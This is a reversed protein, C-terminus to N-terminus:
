GKALDVLFGPSSSMVVSRSSAVLSGSDVMGCCAAAARWSYLSCRLIKRPCSVLIRSSTMGSNTERDFSGSRGSV